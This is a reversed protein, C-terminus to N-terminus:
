KNFIQDIREQYERDIDGFAAWADYICWISFGALLAQPLGRKFYRGMAKLTEKTENM